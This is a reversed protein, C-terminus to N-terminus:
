KNEKMNEILEILEELDSDLENFKGYEGNEIMKKIEEISKRHNKIENKEENTTDRHIVNLEEMEKETPYPFNLVFEKDKIKNIEDVLKKMNEGYGCIRVWSKSRTIATFLINRKTILDLGDYCLHSDMIYVMPAENGKARHIGTITVSDISFFDDVSTTVGALHSNIRKEYLKKRLAGVEKQTKRPDTHIVVIDRYELEDETLNKEIENAIWEIEEDKNDFNKVEIMEEIPSHELFSPSSKESRSLKVKKGYALDGELVEYGIDEWLKLNSFMQVLGKDRYIGFGLAHAATLLSKPNRYCKELIIDQKAKGDENKLTVNADKKDDYGFIEEPSRMTTGNLNQLEDYAWILRKPKKLIMYCLKLFEEPLDQAEDILIVDYMEKAEKIEDLARLCIAEFGSKEKYNDKQAKAFNYYELGHNECVEYYIGKSRSSGWAHIIKIKEWDPEEAIHQYCFRKILDEFQNKLSRTNFTVGIVWDPNQVHLYAVKLALVITKGSGALGRIRQPGEATEIVAKSQINDLNAISQEIKKIKSGKSHEKTVKKRVQPAKIQTITQIVALLEEYKEGNNKLNLKGLFFKELEVKNKAVLYEYNDVPWTPAWTIIELDIDLDRKKMLSSHKRLKAEFNNYLEDQFAMRNEVEVNEFIDFIILGYDPSAFIADVNIVGEETGIIPYGFYLEGKLDLEKMAGELIQYAGYKEHKGRIIELQM